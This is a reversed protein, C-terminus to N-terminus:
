VAAPSVSPCNLLRPASRVPQNVRLDSHLAFSQSLGPHWSKNTPLSPSKNTKRVTLLRKVFASTSTLPQRNHVHAFIFGGVNTANYATYPGVWVMAPRWPLSWRRISFQNQVKVLRLSIFLLSKNRFKNKFSLGSFIWYKEEQWCISYCFGFWVRIYKRVLITRTLLSPKESLHSVAKGRQLDTWRFQAQSSAASEAALRPCKGRDSCM